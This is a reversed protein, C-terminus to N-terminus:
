QHHGRNRGASPRNVHFAFWRAMHHARLKGRKILEYITSPSVRWLVALEKMHLFEPLDAFRTNVTIQGSPSSADTRDPQRRRKLVPMVGARAEAGAIREEILLRLLGSITRHESRAVEALQAKLDADRDRLSGTTGTAHKM